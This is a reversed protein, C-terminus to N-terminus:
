RGRQARTFPFVKTWGLIDTILLIVFVLVIAGVIGDGGVPLADISDALQAVEENSLADVRAQVDAPKVGLAEFKARVDSRELVGAVRDRAASAAAADTPVMGAHAPIPMGTGTVCIMLLAAVFRRVRTM